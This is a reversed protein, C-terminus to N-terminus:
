NEPNNRIYMLANNSAAARIAEPLLVEFVPADRSKDFAVAAARLGERDIDLVFAISPADQPYRVYVPGSLTELQVLAGSGTAVLRTIGVAWLDRAYPQALQALEPQVPALPPPASVCACLVVLPLTKALM